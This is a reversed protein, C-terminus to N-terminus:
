SLSNCLKKHQLAQKPQFLTKSVIIKQNQPLSIVRNVEFGVVNAAWKVEM